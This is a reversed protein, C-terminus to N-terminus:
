VRLLAWKQVNFYVLNRYNSGLAKEIDKKGIVLCDTDEICKAQGQRRGNDKLASEGFM